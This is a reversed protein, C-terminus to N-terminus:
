GSVIRFIDNWTVFIMLFILLMMGIMHVIGEKEPSLQKIRFLRLIANVIIFFIRGGDLAPLPLLNMVGINVAIFAALFIFQSFGTSAATNMASVVGVPGSLDKVGAQGSILMQLALFVMQVMWVTQFFAEKIIWFVNKTQAANYGIIYRGEHPTPVISLTLKEGGRRVVVTAEGEGLSLNATDRQTHIAEGNISLIRDGEHLVGVANTGEVVNGVIPVYIGGDSVVSTVTMALCVVFGLLVNMAAGAALIILRAYAPKSSFSRPNESEGDEGEMQCFGGMPIARVSYLTEGKQKKFLAPGMGIAFENVKVGFWKATMFHGLEHVFIIVSFILIAGIITIIMM